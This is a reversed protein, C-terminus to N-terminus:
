EERDPPAQELVVSPVSDLSASAPPALVSGFGVLAYGSGTLLSVLPDIGPYQRWDYGILVVRAGAAPAPSLGLIGEEAYAYVLDAGLHRAVVHGLVAADVTDWVVVVDVADPFFAAALRAGLAEPVAPTQLSSFPADALASAISLVAPTDTTM